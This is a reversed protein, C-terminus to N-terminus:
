YRWKVYVSIAVSQFNGNGTGGATRARLRLKDGANFNLNIQENSTAVPGSTSLGNIYLAATNETNGIYVSINKQNNFTSSAYAALRVVTGAFPLTYGADSTLQSDILLWDDNNISNMTYNFSTSEVSLNKNSRTSDVTFLMPESLNGSYGTLQKTTMAPLQSWSGNSYFEYVSLSTNYRIMGNVPSTPRQATTGAAVEHYSTATQTWSGAATVAGVKM